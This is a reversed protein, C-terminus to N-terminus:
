DAVDLIKIESSDIDGKIFKEVAYQLKTKNLTEDYDKIEFKFREPRKKGEKNEKLCNCFETNESIKCLREYIDKLKENYEPALLKLNRKYERLRLIGLLVALCSNFSMVVHSNYKGIDILSDLDIIEESIGTIIKDLYETKIKEVLKKNRWLATSLMKISYFRLNEEDLNKVITDLIKVQWTKSCDGLAYCLHTDYDLKAKGIYPLLESVIKDCINDDVDKHIVCLFYQLWSKKLHDIDSDVYTEAASKAQQFLNCFETNKAIEKDKISKGSNWATLVPFRLFSKIPRGNQTINVTYDFVKPLWDDVINSISANGDKDVGPFNYMDNWGYEKCFGSYPLRLNDKHSQNEWSAQIFKFDAKQDEFPIFKLDYPHDAGYTYTLKLKCKVSKKLPFCNDEMYAFHKTEEQNEGKYLKFEYFHNREPMEFASKVPVVTVEGKRPVIGITSDDVLVLEQFKTKLKLHPLHKRWLIFDPTKEQEIFYNIAGDCLNDSESIEIYEVQYYKFNEGQEGKEEQEGRNIDENEGQSDIKVKVEKHLKKYEGLKKELESSFDGFDYKGLAKNDVFFEGAVNKDANTFHYPEAAEEGQSQSQLHSQLNNQSYFDDASIVKSPYQDFIIGAGDPYEKLFDDSIKPQIDTCVFRDGYKDVICFRKNLVERGREGYIQFIKAISRPLPSINSFKMNFQHKLAKQMESFDDSDDPILYFNKLAKINERIVQAFYAAGNFPNFREPIKFNDNFFDHITVTSVSICSSFKSINKDWILDAKGCGVEFQVDGEVDEDIFYNQYVLKNDIIGKKIEGDGCLCAFYPKLNVFDFVGCEGEILNENKVAGKHVFSFDDINPFDSLERCKDGAWLSFPVFKGNVKKVGQLKGSFPMIAGKDELFLVPCHLFKYDGSVSLEAARNWFNYVDAFENFSDIDSNTLEDIQNLECWGKWIKRYNKDCLLTNNPVGNNWDRILDAEDSVLWRHIKMMFEETGVPILFDGGDKRVAKALLEKEYLIRDIRRLFDKFLRNETTDISPNHFVGMMKGNQAIKQKVTFGPKNSLWRLCTSDTERVFSNRTIIHETIIKNHLSEMLSYVARFTFSIINEVRDNWWFLEGDTNIKNIRSFLEGTTTPLPKNTVPDFDFISNIWNERCLGRVLRRKELFNTEKSCIISYIKEVTIKM